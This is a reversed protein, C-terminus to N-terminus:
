VAAEAPVDEVREIDWEMRRAVTFESVGRYGRGYRIVRYQGQAECEQVVKEVAQREYEAEVTAIHLWGTYTEFVNEVRREVDFRYTEAAAQDDQM